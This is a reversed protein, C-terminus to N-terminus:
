KMPSQPEESIHKELPINILKQRPNKWHMHKGETIYYKKIPLYEALPSCTEAPRVNSTVLRYSFEPINAPKIFIYKMNTYIEVRFAAHQLIINQL